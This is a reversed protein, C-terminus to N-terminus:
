TDLTVPTCYGSGDFFPVSVRGVANASAGIAVALSVPGAILLEAPSGRDSCRRLQEVTAEALGRIDHADLLSGSARIVTLDSASVRRAHDIFLLNTEPRATVAIVSPGGGVLAKSHVTVASRKSSGLLGVRMTRGVTSQEVVLRLRTTARWRYGILFALPLPVDLSLILEPAVVRVLCALRTDELVEDIAQISVASVCRGGLTCQSRWDFVLDYGQPAPQRYTSIAMRISDGPSAVIADHAYRRAAMAHFAHSDEDDKVIGTFDLLISGCHGLADCIEQQDRGPKLDVFLPVLLYHSQQAARELAAPIEIDRIVESELSARTGYWIFGGTEGAIANRIHSRTRMGLPLDDVDRWGGAGRLALEAKLMVVAQSDERRHSIFPRISGGAPGGPQAREEASPMGDLKSEHQM